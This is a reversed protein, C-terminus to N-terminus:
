QLTVKTKRVSGDKMNCVFVYLGKPQDLVLRSSPSIKWSRGDISQLTMEEVEDHQPIYVVGASPNPYVLVSKTYFIKDLGAPLDYFFVYETDKRYFLMVPDWVQYLANLIKGDEVLRTNLDLPVGLSYDNEFEERYREYGTEDWYVELRYFGDTREIMSFPMYEWTSFTVTDKNLKLTTSAIKRNQPDYKLNCLTTDNQSDILYYSELLVSDPNVDNYKRFSLGYKVEKRSTNGNSVQFVAITDVLTAKYGYKITETLVLKKAAFSYSYKDVQTLQGRENRYITRRSSLNKITKVGAVLEWFNHQVLTGFADYKWEEDQSFEGVDQQYQTRTFYVLRGLTDYEFTYTITVPRKDIINQFTPSINDLLGVNSKVHKRIRGLSDYDFTHKYYFAKEQSHYEYYYEEVLLPNGLTPLNKEYYFPLLIDAQGFVAKSVILGFLIFYRTVINM